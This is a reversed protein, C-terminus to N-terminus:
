QVTGGGNRMMALQELYWSAAPGSGVPFAKHAEAETIAGRRIMELLATRWGLFKAKYIAGYETFSMIMWETGYPWQLTGVRVFEQPRSLQESLGEHQLRMAQEAMEGALNLVKKAEDNQGLKRLTYFRKMEAEGKLRLDQAQEMKTPGTVIPEGKYLPNRMLLAIRGSKAQPSERVCYESLKIRGKGVVKGLKDYFERPSLIKGQRMEENEHGEWRGQGDWRNAKEAAETLERLAFNHEMQKVPDGLDYREAQMKELAEVVRPHRSILDLNATHQFEALMPKQGVAVGRDGLGLALGLGRMAEDREPDAEPIFTGEDIERAAEMIEKDAWHKKPASQQHPPIVVNGMEVKKTM